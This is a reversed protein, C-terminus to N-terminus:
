VLIKNIYDSHISLLQSIPVHRRMTPLHRNLSTFDGLAKYFVILTSTMNKVAGQQEPVCARSQAKELM